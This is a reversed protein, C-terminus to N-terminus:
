IFPDSVPYKMKFNNDNMSFRQLLIKSRELTIPPEEVLAFHTAEKPPTYNCISEINAVTIFEFGNKVDEHSESNTQRMFLILSPQIIDKLQEIHGIYFNTEESFMNIKASFHKLKLSGEQLELPTM